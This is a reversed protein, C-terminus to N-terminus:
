LIIADIAQLLRNNEEQTGVSIRLYRSLLRTNFHRLLIKADKLQNLINLAIFPEPPQALIFNAHSPLILFDRKLLEQVLRKRENQVLAITKRLYADDNLSAQGIRIALADENYSDKATNLGELIYPNLSVAYGIRVGALAHSKSLTRVVIANPHNQLHPIFSPADSEAFDNYAEDIIWLRESKRITASIIEPSIYEGTQANPNSLFVVDAVHSLLNELSINLTEDNKMPAYAFDAGSFLVLTEYLSYTIEPALAKKGPGLFVRCVLSLAEDSGNTVLINEPNLHFKIALASRLPEGAPNPYKRLVSPNDSITKLVNLADPSPPYPNENTNLKIWNENDPQEGPTYGSLKKFISNRFDPFISKNM